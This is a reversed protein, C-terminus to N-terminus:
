RERTEEVARADRGTGDSTPITIIVVFTPLLPNVVFTTM